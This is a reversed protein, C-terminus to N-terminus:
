VNRDDHRKTRMLIELLLSAVLTIFLVFNIYVFVYAYNENVTISFDVFWSSNVMYEEM